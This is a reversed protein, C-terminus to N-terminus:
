AVKREIKINKFDQYMFGGNNGGYQFNIIMQDVNDIVNYRKTKAPQNYGEPKFVDGTEGDIFCVVGGNGYYEWGEGRGYDVQGEEEMIVVYKRKPIAKYTARYKAGWAPEFVVKTAENAFVNAQDIVKQNM